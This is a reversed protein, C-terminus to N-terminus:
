AVHFADKILAVADGELSQAERVLSEFDALVLGAAMLGLLQELDDWLACGSKGNVGTRSRCALWDLGVTALVAAIATAIATDSVKAELGRVRQWLDALSHERAKVWKRLNTIERPITKTVEHELTRLRPYVGQAVSHVAAKEARIAQRLATQAGHEVTHILNRAEQLARRVDTLSAADGIARAVSMAFASADVLTDGTWEVVNAVAHLTTGVAHDIPHLLNGVWHSIANEIRTAVSGTVYQVIRGWISDSGLSHGLMQSFYKVGIVLGLGVLAAALVEPDVLLWLPM